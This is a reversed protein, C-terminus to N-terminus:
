LLLLKSKNLNMKRFIDDAINLRLHYSEDRLLHFKYFVLSKFANFMNKKSIIHPIFTEPETILWIKMSEFLTTMNQFTQRQKPLQITPQRNM